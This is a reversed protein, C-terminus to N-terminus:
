PEFNAAVAAQEGEGRGLKAQERRQDLCLAPNQSPLGQEVCEVPRHLAVRELSRDIDVDAPQAVLQALHDIMRAVDGRYTSGPIPRYVPLGGGPRGWSHAPFSSAAAHFRPGLLKATAVPWPLPM